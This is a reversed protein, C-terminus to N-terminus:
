QRCDELVYRVLDAAQHKTIEEQNLAEDWQEALRQVRAVKAEAELARDRWTKRLYTTRESM